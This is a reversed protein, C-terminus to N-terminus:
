DGESRRSGGHSHGGRPSRVVRAAPLVASDNQKRAIIAAAKQAEGPRNLAGVDYVRLAFLATNPSPNESVTDVYREWYGAAKRLDDKADDPFETAGSQQQSTALGYYDRM